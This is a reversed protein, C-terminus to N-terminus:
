DGRKDRYLAIPGLENCSRCHFMRPAHHTGQLSVLLVALSRRMPPLKTRTRKFVERGDSGSSSKM